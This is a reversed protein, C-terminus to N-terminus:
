KKFQILVVQIDVSKCKHFKFMYDVNFDVHTLAKVHVNLEKAKKRWFSQTSSKHMSYVTDACDLAKEVFVTDIRTQDKTGFPPNMVVTDVKTVDAPLTLSSADFECVDRNIFSIHDETFGLSAANTRAVELMSFDM